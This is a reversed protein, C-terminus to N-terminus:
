YELFICGAGGAQSQVPNAGPWASVGAAGGAGVTLRLTQGPITTIYVDKYQGSGGGGGGGRCDRDDYGTEGDGGYGHTQDGYVWYGLTEPKGGGYAPVLSGTSCVPNMGASTLSAGGHGLGETREDSGTGPQGAVCRLLETGANAGTLATIVTDTGASGSQGVYNNAGKCGGGGGGAVAKVHMSTVGNPVVIDIVGPTGHTQNGHAVLAQIDFDIYKVGGYAGFDYSVRFHNSIHNIPIDWYPSAAGNADLTGTIATGPSDGQVQTQVYSGNPKGGVINVVLREGAQYVTKSTAVTPNYTVPPPNVSITFQVTKKGGYLGFDVEFTYPGSIDAPLTGTETAAGSGNLTFTNLDGWTPFTASRMGTVLRSTFTANPKGNAVSWTLTDAVAFTYKNLSFIPNWVQASVQVNLTRQVGTQASTIKLTYTKAPAHATFNFSGTGSGSLSITGLNVTAVINTGDYGTADVSISDGSVGGSISYLSAVEETIMTPGSLSLGSGNNLTFTRTVSTVGGEDDIAEIVLTHNGPAVNSLVKSFNVVNTGATGFNTFGAGDLQYRLEVIKGFSDPDTVTGSLTVNGSSVVTAGPSTVNITPKQNVFAAIDLLKTTNDSYTLNIGRTTKVMNVVVKQELDKVDLETQDNPSFM